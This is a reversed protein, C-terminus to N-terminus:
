ATEKKVKNNLRTYIKVCIERERPINREVIDLVTQKQQICAQDFGAHSKTALNAVDSAPYAYTAIKNYHDLYIFGGDSDVHAQRMAEYVVM